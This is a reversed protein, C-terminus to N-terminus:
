LFGLLLAVLGAALTLGVVWQAHGGWGTSILENPLEILLQTTAAAGAVFALLAAANLWFLIRKNM